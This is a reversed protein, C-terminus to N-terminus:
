SVRVIRPRGLPTPLTRALFAAGAAAYAANVHGEGKRSFVWVDGRTLREAGLVHDDLLPDGSHAVLDSAVEAAFSMCVAALEGRIEAVTVGPPPWGHRGAKRRDAMRAAVVAAPGTPFWGVTQPRIRAVLGPLATMLQEACDPGFWSHVIEVRVRGDDLVAAAALAAHRGDPSIDLCLAVRSRVGSLEGPDLNRRWALPDVAPDMMKVRLCLKETKFGTLAEGGKAEARRGELILDELNRGYGVRPNAQLLGDIDTVDADEPASWEFLGLRYDGEGKNIFDLAQERLDNLVVSQDFGANSTCWIQADEPSAAPEAANWTKYDKHQRLEDILLRDITLSRGGEENAASIKYRSREGLTWMEIRNNGRVYWKPEHENELEASREVIRRTKEWTEKAYETKTSMGLIMPVQEVFLWFGALVVLLETKGNQRAVIVLVIRFRPRGDPLLEGAHILLWEQWPLMPRGLVDRSFDIQEFGASTEPTLERLPKTWLRPETKGRLAALESSTSSQHALSVSM